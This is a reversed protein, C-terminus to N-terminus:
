RAGLPLLKGESAAPAAIGLLASLTPAIDVVNVHQDLRGARTWTPGYFLIPVNTDYPYPSGHTTSASSSAFMWNPKLVVQIDGSLDANWAKTVADFFPAGARSRSIIETRTYAAAFGPEALILDRAAGAVTDFALGKEAILKKDLVIASASAYPALKATAFRKELEVNLRALTEGVSIRGADLGRARSVEPAPMFGHDATLVALYNDKGVTADLHRFFEQLMRDLKLLHDHSLRSEASWAHNVYDHGSLSVSLIDPIDDQGLQEGAIAARAFALSLEDVFPSRLLINYFAPGPKEADAGMTMPLKGPRPGFWPQSDPLSGAYAAEALTPTWDVKFYRDAPKAANFADVWAPHKPM